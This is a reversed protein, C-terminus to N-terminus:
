EGQDRKIIDMLMKWGVFAVVSLSLLALAAEVPHQVIWELLIRVPEGDLPM